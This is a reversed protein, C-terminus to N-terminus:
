LPSFALAQETGSRSCLNKLGIAIPSGAGNLKRRAHYGAISKECVCRTGSVAVMRHSRIGCSYCRALAYEGLIRNNTDNHRSSHISYHLFRPLEQQQSLEVLWRQQRPKTGLLVLETHGREM